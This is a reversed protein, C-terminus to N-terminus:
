YANESSPQPRTHLVGAEFEPHVADLDRGLSYGGWLEKHDVETKGAIYRPM